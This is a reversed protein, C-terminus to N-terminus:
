GQESEKPTALMQVSGAFITEPDHQRGDSDPPYHWITASNDHARWAMRFTEGDDGWDAEFRRLGIKEALSMLHHANAVALQHDKYTSM